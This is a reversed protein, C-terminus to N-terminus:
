RPRCSIEEALASRHELRFVTLKDWGHILMSGLDSLAKVGQDVQPATQKSFSSLVGHPM